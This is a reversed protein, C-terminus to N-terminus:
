FWWSWVAGVVWALVKWAAWVVVLGVVALVVLVWDRIEFAEAAQMKMLQKQKSHYYNEEKKEEREGDDVGGAGPGVAGAAGRGPPPPPPPGGRLGGHRRFVLRHLWRPLRSPRAPDAAHFHARRAQHRLDVLALSVLFSVFLLPTMVLKPPTNTLTM